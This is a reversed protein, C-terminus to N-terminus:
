KDMPNNIKYFRRVHQGDHCMRRVERQIKENCDRCTYDFREDTMHKYCRKNPMEWLKSINKFMAIMGDKEDELSNKQHTLKSESQKLDNAYNRMMNIKEKYIRILTEQSLDKYESSKELDEMTLTKAFEICRKYLTKMDYREALHLIELSKDGSLFYDECRMKMSPM